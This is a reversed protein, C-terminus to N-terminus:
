KPYKNMKKCSYGMQHNTSTLTQSFSRHTIVHKSKWRKESKETEKEFDAPGTVNTDDVYLESVGHLSKRWKNSPCIVIHQALLLKKPTILWM